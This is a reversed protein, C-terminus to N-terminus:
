ALLRPRFDFGSAPIALGFSRMQQARTIVAAGEMLNRAVQVVSRNAAAELFSGRTWTNFAGM